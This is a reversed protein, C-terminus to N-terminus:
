YADFLPEIYEDQYTEQDKLPKLFKSMATNGKAAKQKNKERTELVELQSSSVYKQGPNIDIKL